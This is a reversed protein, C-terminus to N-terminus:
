KKAGIIGRRNVGGWPDFTYNNNLLQDIKFAVDFLVRPNARGSNIMAPTLKQRIRLRPCKITIDASGLKDYLELAREIAWPVWRGDPEKFYEPDAYLTETLEEAAEKMKRQIDKNAIDIDLDNLKFVSIAGCKVKKIRSVALTIEISYTTTLAAKESQVDDLLNVLKAKEGPLM